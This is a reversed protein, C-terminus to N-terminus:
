NRREHFVNDEARKSLNAATTGGRGAGVKIAERKDEPQIDMYINPRFFLYPAIIVSLVLTGGIGPIPIPIM